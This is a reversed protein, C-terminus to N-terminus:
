EDDQSDGRPAQTIILFVALGLWSFFITVLFWGFKAGGHSRSSMLVWIVPVVYILVFLGIAIAAALAFQDDAFM